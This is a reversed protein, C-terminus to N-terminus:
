PWMCRYPLILRAHRCTVKHVKHGEGQTITCSPYLQGWRRAGTPAGGVVALVLEVSDARPSSGPDPLEPSLEEGERGQGWALLLGLRNSRSLIHLPTHGPGWGQCTPCAASWRGTEQLGREEPGEGLRACEGSNKTSDALLDRPTGAGSRQEARRQSEGPVVKM